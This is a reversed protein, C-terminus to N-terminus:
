TNAKPPSWPFNGDTVEVVPNKKADIQKQIQEDVHDKYSGVVVAQVWGLIASETLSEYSTFNGSDVKSLDFPTAGSFTGSNGDGDTGTLTWYTQVIVDSLDNGSTKKLGTLKWEYTLAM